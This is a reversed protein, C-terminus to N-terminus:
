VSGAEKKASNKAEEAKKLIEERIQNFNRFSPLPPPQKLSTRGDIGESNTRGNQPGTRPEQGAKWTDILKKMTEPTLDEYVEEGNVQIMPANVCAGLCEVETLTFLGDKSTQGKLIGCEHEITHILDRAGKLMCPTTGCVQLHYKGVPERNFMTFFSAVEYVDMESIELIKAIKNMAALPVWGECQKQALYLLSLVASRKYQVPYKSLIIEIEKYNSDSFDFPTDKNNYATERHTALASSFSKKIIRLLM